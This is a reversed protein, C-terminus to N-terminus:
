RKSPGPEKGQLRGLVRDLYHLEAADPSIRLGIALVGAARELDGQRICSKVALATARPPSWDPARGSAGPEIARLLVELAAVPKRWDSSASWLAAEAAVFQKFSDSATAPIPVRPSGRNAPAFIWPVPGERTYLIPPPGDAPADWVLSLYQSLQLNASTFLGFFENLKTAPMGSLASQKERPALDMQWTREDFLSQLVSSTGIYFAKPAEYELIPFADSQVPGRGAIAFATRQSALQRALLSEPTRLGISAFDRRPEDRKFAERCLELSGTWPRASGVLIVDGPGADWIEVHPFVSCFTRFVLSVIADSMEYVHFWQCMIGGENLRRAGLEYYERSFVSGVGVMWPNSPQSIIVDYKRPSLKLLTRADENWVRVVPNTLVGRNWQAFLHGARLVPECNEAIVVENVPYGLLAGATIGSGFGLVFVNSSGPRALMPLHAVLLQTSMDGKTSADPKGNIRLGRDAPAGIGDGEEVTVTADAADEYFLLKMHKKRMAMVGPNVVTERARFVGSSLVHRWGEGGFIWVGSLVGALALSLVVASSRRAKVGLLCAAACLLLALVGFAGRLGIRPMLVFGTVLVGAVAGVTNWTLLRGVRRGLGAGGAGEARLCVPLVAGLLAAPFGLVVMSIGAVALQHFVYGMETRALGTHIHRYIEVWQEIGSVLIGIVAAACMLLTLVTKEENWHRTRPSAIVASGLGIGLIFAMLVIAFAQLSSGFILALSRSALVELGMSVAGTLAVLAAGGRLVGAAPVDAGGPKSSEEAVPPISATRRAVAVAAFGILVNILATAQLASVMGLSRVLVFGAVTAGTVAGLSNVSYFRASLRGPDNSGRQLWVVLLPLTGGMLVTPGLLLGVSLLGKLGLLLASREVMTSGVAVFISDAQQYIWSFFFAYLGIAIELYGYAVLPQRLRDARGGVIRNGLALGGMFVALVVTQAQVTSGLMLSLYKSWVVEYVLATAGSCFFLFLVM